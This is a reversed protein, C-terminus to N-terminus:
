GHSVENEVIHGAACGGFHCTEQGQHTHLTTFLCQTERVSEPLEAAEFGILHQESQEALPTPLMWGVRGKCGEGREQVVFVSLGSQLDSRKEGYGVAAMGNGNGDGVTGYAYVDLRDARQTGFQNRFSHISDLLGEDCCECLGIPSECAKPGALFGEKFQPTRADDGVKMAGQLITGIDREM